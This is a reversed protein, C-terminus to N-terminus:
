DLYAHHVRKSLEDYILKGILKANPHAKGTVEHYRLNLINRWEAISYTYIAVTATDLPLEGRADQVPLGWKIRTKYRIESFRWSLRCIFKKITSLNDYYHPKCITIGNGKGFNVYRTSRETIANPSTRNLERSTSIQTTVAITYRYLDRWTCHSIFKEPFVNYKLLKDALIPHELIFQKNTSVYIVNKDQVYSIYPCEIYHRLRASISNFETVNNEDKYVIYYVSAHRLISKHGRKIAEEVFEKSKNTDLIENEKGYCIRACRAIHQDETIGMQSYIEIKPEIVQM